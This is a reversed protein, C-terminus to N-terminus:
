IGKIPTWSNKATTPQGKDAARQQTLQGKVYQGEGAVMHAKHGAAEQATKQMSGVALM